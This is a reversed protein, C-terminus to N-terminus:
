RVSYFKLAQENTLHHRTAATRPTIHLSHEYGEFCFDAQQIAGAIVQKKIACSSNNCWDHAEGSPRATRHNHQYSATWEKMNNRKNPLIFLSIINQQLMCVHLHTRQWTPASDKGTTWVHTATLLESHRVTYIVARTVGRRAKELGGQRVTATTTTNTNIIIIIIIIIPFTDSSLLL